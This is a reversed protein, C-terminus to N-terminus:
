ESSLELVPSNEGDATVNITLESTAAQTYREPVLLKGTASEPGGGAGEEYAVVAVDHTGIVAGDGDGYTSLEFTGDSQIVGNSGRGAKPRTLVRGTTLPKGDLLVKGTVPAVDPTSKGCSICCVIAMSAASIWCSRM